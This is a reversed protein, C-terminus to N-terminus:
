GLAFVDSPPGLAERRGDAQEPAMYAVTGIAAGTRTLVADDAIQALGFDTIRPMFPLLDDIASDNRSDQDEKKPERFDDLLVNAPKLDRHLIGRDHAHQVAGALRAVLAAAMRVPVPSLRHSLWEALNPGECYESVLYCVDGEHGSEFVPVIGAHKLGGAARAERLFRERVESDVLSGPHPIKLAVRRGIQPDP